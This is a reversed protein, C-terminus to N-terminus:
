LAWIMGTPTLVDISRNSCNPAALLPPRLDVKDLGHRVLADMVLDYETTTVNIHAWDPLFEPNITQSNPAIAVILQAGRRALERKLVAAMVAFQEVYDPRKLEGTSQEFVNEGTYFLWGDRGYVVQRGLPSHLTRHLWASAHWLPSASTIAKILVEHVRHEWGRWDKFKGRSPVTPIAEFFRQRLTAELLLPAVHAVGAFLLAALLVPAWLHRYAALLGM